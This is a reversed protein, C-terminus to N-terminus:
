YYKPQKKKYKGQIKLIINTIASDLESYNNKYYKYELLARRVKHIFRSDFRADVEYVEPFQQIIFEEKSLTM